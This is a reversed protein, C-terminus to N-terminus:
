TTVVKLADKKTKCRALVKHSVYHNKGFTYEVVFYPNKNKFMGIIWVQKDKM